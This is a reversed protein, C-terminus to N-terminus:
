PAPCTEGVAAKRTIFRGSQNLVIDRANQNVSKSAICVRITGAQFASNTLKSSGDSAFSVYSAVNVNGAITVGNPASGSARLVTDGADVIADHDLDSFVIWGQDWTGTAAACTAGDASKCMTVRHSQKIAETRATYLGAIFENTSSTLRNSHMLGTFSPIGIALLIAMIAVTIMLELLTFGHAPPRSRLSSTKYTTALLM